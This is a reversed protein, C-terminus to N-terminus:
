IPRYAEYGAEYSFWAWHEGTRDNFSASAQGPQGDVELYLYIHHGAWVFIDGSKLTSVDDPHDLKQYKEPHAEMYDRQTTPGYSPFETDHKSYRIVTSVFIDCSAGKPACSGAANCPVIYNGVEQMATVYEPKPDDKAHVNHNPWSLLEATKAVNGNGGGCSGTGGLAKYKVFTGFGNSTSSSDYVGDRVFRGPWYPSMEPSTPDRQADFRNMVYASGEGNEAEEDSFGMNKAKTKYVGAAGNYEFFLRKVVNDDNIDRGSIKGVIVDAAIDTQRQFEDDDIPGAPLFANENTGGDTYSYLQYAGQGNSPNDRQLGHEVSHFVALLQWPFNHENAAKEYFPQNEAIMALEADSWVQDGAYNKNDGVGTTGGSSSGTTLAGKITDVWQDYGNTPHIEESDADYYEDKAVAAWDAVTINDYTGRSNKIANNVGTYDISKKTYATTLVIKTDEGAISVLNDIYGSITSEASGGNNTGLAFVLYKRLNGADVIGQLIDLGQSMNRGVQINNDNEGFDIESGFVSTIKDRAGVSYSDGIWTIESASPLRTPPCSNDAGGNPNYFVINNEGFEDDRGSPLDVKAFVQAPFGAAVITFISVLYCSFARFFNKLSFNAKM